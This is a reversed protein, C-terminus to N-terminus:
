LAARRFQCHAKNFLSTIAVTPPSPSPHAVCARRARGPLGMPPRAQGPAEPESGRVNIPVGLPPRRGHSPIPSCVPMVGRRASWPRIIQSDHHREAGPRAVGGHQEETLGSASAVRPESETFCRVVAGVSATFRLFRLDANLKKKGSVSSSQSAKDKESGSLGHVAKAVASPTNRFGQWVVTVACAM